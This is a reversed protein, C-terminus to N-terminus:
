FAQTTQTKYVQPSLVKDSNYACISVTYQTGPLLSSRVNSLVNGVDTGYVTFNSNCAAPKDGPNFSVWYGVTTGGGSKWTATLQKSSDSTFGTIVPALPPPPKLPTTQDLTVATSSQGYSDYATVTVTLKTGGSLGSKVWTTSTLNDLTGTTALANNIYSVKYGTTTPGGSQWNATIQFQSDAVLALGKPAPPPPPLLIAKTTQTATAAASVHGNNDYGCISFTYPQGPSLNTLTLSTNMTQSGQCDPASTGGLYSVWYGVSDISGSSWKATLQSTSDATVVLNLPKNPGFFASNSLKAEWREEQVVNGKASIRSIYGDLNLAYLSSASSYNVSGDDQYTSSSTSSFSQLNTSSSINRGISDYSFSSSSGLSSSMWVPQGLADWSYSVTEGSPKEVGILNGGGYHFATFYGASDTSSILQSNADYNASFAQKSSVDTVSTLNGNGDYSYSQSAQNLSENVVDWYSNVTYTKVIGKVGASANSSTVTVLLKTSDFTIQDVVGDPHSISSIYPPTDTYSYTTVRSYFDIEKTLRKIADFVLESSQGNDVIDLTTVTSSRYFTEILSRSFSFQSVASQAYNYNTVYGEYDTETQLASDTPTTIYAYKTQRGERDTFSNMLSTGSVYGFKAVQNNPYTISLLNQSSDYGFSYKGGKADKISSLGNATGELVVTNGFRDTISQIQGTNSRVFTAIKNSGRDLPAYVAYLQPFAAGSIMQYVDQNGKLYKVRLSGTQPNEMWADTLIPFKAVWRDKSWVMEIPTGDGQYWTGSSGSTAEFLSDSSISWGVGYGRNKKSQSNYVLSFPLTPLSIYIQNNGRCNGSGESPYATGPRSACPKVVDASYATLATIFMAIIFTLKHQM